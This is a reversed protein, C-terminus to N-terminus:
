LLHLIVLTKILFSRKSYIKIVHNTTLEAIKQHLTQTHFFRFLCYEVVKFKNTKFNESRFLVHVPSNFFPLTTCLLWIVGSVELLMRVKILRM